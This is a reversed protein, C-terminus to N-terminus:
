AAEGQQSDPSPDTLANPLSGTLAQVVREMQLSRSGKVLCVVDKHIAAQLAGILADRTEFHEAGDGFAAVMARSREGTAFLREVGAERLMSGARHHFEESEDGLERMDGLAAWARGPQSVLVDVAARLSAPNANYSDDILRWGKPNDVLNLRGPVPTTAALGQRIPELGVGVALALGTAAMANMINHEGPLSLELAFDGQPTKILWGNNDRIARIDAAQDFGFALSNQATSLGEWLPLWPEEFNFIAFGDAPLAAYLEGKTRAVGEEDGMGKLHAPGVNTIVGAEPKALGALYRIDGPKGAGMELVAFDHDPSLGFMTLPVGLENNYNGATALVTGARGLISTLMEKTTTKGNSGTMATVRVSLSERWATALQGLAQLVSAVRLQPVRTSVQRQVLVAIAGAEEARAVFDHGDFHEGPLAAFLMGPKVQRSDTTVGTFVLQSELNLGLIQAAEEITMRIM